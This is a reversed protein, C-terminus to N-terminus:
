EALLSGASKLDAIGGPSDRAATECLHVLLTWEEAAAAGAAELAAKADVTVLIELAQMGVRSENGIHRKAATLLLSRALESKTTAGASFEKNSRDKLQQSTMCGVASLLTPVVGEAGKRGAKTSFKQSAM